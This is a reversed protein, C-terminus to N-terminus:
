AHELQMGLSNAFPIWMPDREAQTIVADKFKQQEKKIERIEVINEKVKSVLSKVFNRRDWFVFGILFLIFTFVIGFGWMVFSKLNSLQMQIDSRLLDNQRQVEARFDDIRQNVAKFGEQVQVELRIIREREDQSYASNLAITLVIIILSYFYKIKQM